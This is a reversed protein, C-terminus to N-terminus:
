ERRAHKKARPITRVLTLLMAGIYGSLTSTKTLGAVVSNFSKLLLDGCIGLCM